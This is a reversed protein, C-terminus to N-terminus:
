AEVSHFSQYADLKKVIDKLNSLMNRTTETKINNDSNIKVAEEASALVQQSASSLHTIHNEIESNYNSVAEINNLIYEIIKNLFIINEELVIFDSMTVDIAKNEENVSNVVNKVANQAIIANEELEETIKNISDTLSTTLIALKRIESAVVSFGKGEDGAKASKVSANFSLLNTEDTLYQISNSIKKVNKTTNVFEDITKLVNKNNEVIQRSKNKITEFSKKGNAVGILSDASVFTANQVAAVSEEIMRSINTSMEAQEEISSTNQFNGEAIDNIIHLSNTMATDLEDAVTDTSSIGSKVKKVIKLIQKTLESIKTDENKVLEIKEDAMDKVLFSSYILIFSYITLCEFEMFYVMVGYKNNSIGTEIAHRIIAFLNISHISASVSLILKKNGYMTYANLLTVGVFLVWFSYITMVFVIYIFMYNILIIYKLKPNNPSHLFSILNVIFLICVVIYYIVFLMPTLEKSNLIVGHKSEIILGLLVLINTMQSFVMLPKNRSTEHDNEPYTTLFIFLFIGISFLLILSYLYNINLFRYTFFSTFLGLITFSTLIINKKKNAIM